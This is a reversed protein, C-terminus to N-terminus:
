PSNIAGGQVTINNQTVTSGDGADIHVVGGNTISVGLALTVANQASLTANNTFSSPGNISITGGNVNASIIGNNVLSSAASNDFAGQEITGTKGDITVGTNDITLTTGADVSLFGPGNSSTGIFKIEG